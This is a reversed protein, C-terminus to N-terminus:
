SRDALAEAIRHRRSARFRERERRRGSFSQGTRPHVEAKIELKEAPLRQVFDACGLIQQLPISINKFQRLRSIKEQRRQSPGRWSNSPGFCRIRGKKKLACKEL